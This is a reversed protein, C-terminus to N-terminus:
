IFFHQCIAKLSVRDVTKGLKSVSGHLDKHSSSVSNAASKGRSIFDLIANKTGESLPEDPQEVLIFIFFCLIYVYNTHHLILCM